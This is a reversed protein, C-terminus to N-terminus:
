HWFDTRKLFIHTVKIKEDIENEATLEKNKKFELQIKLKAQNLAKLDQDFVDKVIKHINKYLALVVKRRSM